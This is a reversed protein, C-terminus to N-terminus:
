EDAADDKQAHAAYRDYRRYASGSKGYYGSEDLGFQSFLAFERHVANLICGAFTDTKERLSLIADNIDAAYVFDTRLVVLSKDVFRMFTTVDAAVSLPPTDILVYDFKKRCIQMLERFRNGELLNIPNPILVETPIIYANEINTGYIVDYIEARASLFHVLGCDDHKLEFGWQSKMESNRMDADIVLVRNGAEAMMKWMEMTIFSKGENPTSSTIMITKVNEGSFGLSIRLQNLAETM